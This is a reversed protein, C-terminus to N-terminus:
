GLVGVVICHKVKREKREREGDSGKLKRKVVLVFILKCPHKVLIRHGYNLPKAARRAAWRLHSPNKAKGILAL